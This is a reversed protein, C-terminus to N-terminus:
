SVLSINDLTAEGSRCMEITQDPYKIAQSSRNPFRFSYKIDCHGLALLEIDSYLSM